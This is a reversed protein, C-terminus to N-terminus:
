FTPQGFDEPVRVFLPHQVGKARAEDRVALLDAGHSIMQNGQLALWEGLYDAGHAGFWEQEARRSCANENLSTTDTVALSTKDSVAIQVRQGEILDLQTLPRLVGHEFIAEGRWIM